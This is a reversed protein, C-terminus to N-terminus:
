DCPLKAQCAGAACNESYCMTDGTCSVGNAAFNQCTGNVCVANPQCQAAFASTCAAGAGPIPTCTGSLAALGSSGTMCYNRAACAEPFGPKCAGGAAYSGTQVCKWVISTTYSDAVCSLGLQCLQQATPDCAANAAAAFVQTPPLCTGSTKNTDDKGM